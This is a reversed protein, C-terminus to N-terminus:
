RHFLEHVTKGKAKGTCKQIGAVLSIDKTQRSPVNVTDGIRLTTLQVCLEEIQLQLAEIKPEESM